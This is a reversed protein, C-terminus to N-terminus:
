LEGDGDGEREPIRLNARWKMVGIMSMLASESQKHTTPNTKKLKALILKTNIRVVGLNGYTSPFALDLGLGLGQLAPVIAM